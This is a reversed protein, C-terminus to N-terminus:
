PSFSFHLYFKFHVIDLFLARPVLNNWEKFVIDFSIDIVRLRIKQRGSDTFIKFELHLFVFLCVFLVFM